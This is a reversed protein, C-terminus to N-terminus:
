SMEKLERLFDALVPNPDGKKWVASVGWAADKAPLHHIQIGPVANRWMSEPILTVGMGARVLSMATTFERVEQVIRPHFGESACIRLAHSYFGPSREPTIIVFPLTRCDKLKLTKPFDSNAASILALRDKLVPLQSFAAGLEVPMRLFGIDLKGEQLAAEQELTSMDQLSIQVASSAKRLKMIVQPVLDLSHAGFGIRLKGTKGSAGNKGDTLLQDFNTLMERVSTLWMSGFATLKTGHKGRDFLPSGLEAEIKRIQKTLAPQSLNLVNAARGFHLQEALVTFSRLEHIDM